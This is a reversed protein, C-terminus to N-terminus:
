IPFSRSTSSTSRTSPSSSTRGRRASAPGSGSSTGPSSPRHRDPDAAAGRLGRAKRRRTSRPATSGRRARGAQEGLYTPYGQRTFYEYWGMRGDPTTEWTKSSPLLRARVRDAAAEESDRAGPVARVDPQRHHGGRRIPGAGRGPGMGAADSHVQKGGVFFSGQQKLVLPKSPTRVDSLNQASGAAPVLALAALISGVAATLSRGNPAHTPTFVAAAGTPSRIDQCAPPPRTGGPSAAPYM